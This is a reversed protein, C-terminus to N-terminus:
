GRPRWSDLAADLAPIGFDIDPILNNLNTRTEEIVHGVEVVTGITEGLGPFKKLASNMAATAASGAAVPVLPMVDDRIIERVVKRVVAQIREDSVVAAVVDLIWGKIGGIKEQPQPATM